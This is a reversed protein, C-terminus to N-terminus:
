VDVQLAGVLPKPEIPTVSRVRSYITGGHTIWHRQGRPKCGVLEGIEAVALIRLDIAESGSRQGSVPVGLRLLQYRVGEALPQSSSTFYIEKSRVVGGDTELLGRVLALTQSRP